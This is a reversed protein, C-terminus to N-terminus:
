GPKATIAVDSGPAARVWAKGAARHLIVANGDATIRWSGTPLSLETLRQGHRAARYTLRYEADAPHYSASRITGAVSEAYPEATLEKNTRFAGSDDVTCYGGGYCWVYGAWGSSYRGLSSMADRYFQKM